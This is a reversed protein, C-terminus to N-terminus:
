ETRPLTSFLWIAKEALTKSDIVIRAIDILGSLPLMKDFSYLSYLRIPEKKDGTYYLAIYRGFNKQTRDSRVGAIERIRNGVAANIDSLVIRVDMPKIGLHSLEAAIMILIVDYYAFYARSGRGFFRTYVLDIHGRSLWNRITTPALGVANAVDEIKFITDAGLSLIARAADVTM